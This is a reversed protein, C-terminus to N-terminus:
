RKQLTDRYEAPTMHEIEKFMTFFTSKSKFGVLQGIGALNYNQYDANNILQKAELIRYGNILRNFNSGSHNNIIFSLERPSWELAKALLYLNLDQDRYIKSKALYDNLIEFKLATQTINFEKEQKLPHVDLDLNKQYLGFISIFYVVFVSCVSQIFFLPEDNYKLSMLALTLFQLLSDFMLIICAIMIWRLQRTQNNKACTLFQKRKQIVLRLTILIYCLNFVPPLFANFALILITLVENSYGISDTNTTIVLIIMTAFELLGPLLHFLERREFEGGVIAKTYLFFLPLLLYYFNTPLLSLNPFLWQLNTGVYALLFSALYVSTRGWAGKVLIIMAFILAHLCPLFVLNKFLSVM